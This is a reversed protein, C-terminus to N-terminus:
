SDFFSFAMKCSGLQLTICKIGAEADVVVALLAVMVAVVLAVVVAVALIARAIAIAIRVKVIKKINLVM